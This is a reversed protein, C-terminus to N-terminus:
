LEKELLTIYVQPAIEKEGKIIFGHRQYLSIAPFNLSGTSVIINKIDTEQKQVFRLLEGAIGKRFHAPDVLMRNIDLLCSERKYSIAGVLEQEIFYGYFTETTAQLEPLTEHLPPIGDFNILDSEIRYARHQVELLRTALLPDHLDLLKIMTSNYLLLCM